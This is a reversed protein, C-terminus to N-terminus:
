VIEFELLDSIQYFDGNDISIVPEGTLNIVVSTVTGLHDSSYADSGIKLSHVFSVQKGLLELVTTHAVTM